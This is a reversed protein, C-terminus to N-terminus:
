ALSIQLLSGLRALESHCHGLSGVLFLVFCVLLFVGSFAEIVVFARTFPVLKYFNKSEFEFDTKSSIVFSLFFWRRSQQDAKESM